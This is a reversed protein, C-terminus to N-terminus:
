LATCNEVLPPFRAILNMTQIAAAATKDVTGLVGPAPMCTLRGRWPFAAQSAAGYPDPMVNGQPVDMLVFPYFVTKLGRARLDQIAHIVSADSPTGGYAPKGDLTSVVHASSRPIGSVVWSDPSTIKGMSEVGPLIQCTGCRLDTGFWAVVLSAARLNACTATVDDVSVTWDSRGSSVHANETATVGASEQRTVIATDYGFETSGPIINVARIHSQAGGGSSIVEFSFQPLRNGFQELALREFVIYALGRYAPANAEGQKAVILSDPLQDQGGSYVRTTFSALDIEKGDAWVRGVRDVVGECLGVAFNAFYSYDTTQTKQGGKSSSKQTTTTAVEEFNTAWIIQGAIRMRGWLRPIPAGEESAMVRLENIRPGQVRRTGPGFLSQDIINGAIAGAARGIVGGIPGGLFTGLAAGAYQLVITAM